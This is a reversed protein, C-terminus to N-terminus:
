FLKQIGHFINHEFALLWQKRWLGGAYGILSDNSGIVRHCPIIIPIQNRGIANGVARTAKEDGTLRALELYTITKGFPITATKKWVLKQFDTGSQEANVTFVKRKGDFYEKLENRCKVILPPLKDSEAYRIADFRIAHIAHKSGMIELLGLPTELFTHYVEMWAFTCLM